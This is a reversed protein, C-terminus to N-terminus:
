MSQNVAMTPNEPKMEVKRIVFSDVFFFTSGSEDYLELLDSVSLSHGAYGPPHRCNFIEYLEEIDNTEVAGDYVPMYNALDLPGFHRLTDEYGIFKMGIDVDPKLQWVRCNKLPQLEGKKEPINMLREFMGHIWKIEEIDQQEKLFAELDDKKFIPDVVACGESAIGARSGYYIIIGDEIRIHKMAEDGGDRMKRGSGPLQQLMDNKELAHLVDVNDVMDIVAIDNRDCILIRYQYDMQILLYDEVADPNPLWVGSAYRGDELFCYGCYQPEQQGSFDACPPRIQSLQLKEKEPLLEPKLTGIIDKRMFHFHEGCTLSVASVTEEAPVPKECGCGASGDNICFFLQGPHTGPLADPSVVVVKDKIPIDNDTKNCDEATYVHM